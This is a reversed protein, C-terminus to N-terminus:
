AQVSLAPREDAVAPAPVSVQREDAAKRIALEWTEREYELLDIAKAAKDPDKDFAADVLLKYIFTYVGQLRSRLTPETDARISTLLEMVIDRARSLGTFSMEHNKSALGDRGQRAFKVAGELLMLRLQEPSATLVRTRLYASANEPTM